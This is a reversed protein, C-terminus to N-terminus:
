AAAQQSAWNFVLRQVTIEYDITTTVKAIITEMVMIVILHLLFVILCYSIFFPLKWVKRGNFVNTEGM